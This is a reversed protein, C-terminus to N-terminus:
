YEFWDTLDYGGGPGSQFLVSPLGSDYKVSATNILVIKYATVEKINVSQGLTIKGHGAYAVLAGASQGIDIANLSGGTEASTNQSVMFVYSGSTGSSQFQTNQGITAIGSGSPNAPNDAIIAVSQVQLDPHVKIIPGNQTTVNGAVWIPGNLLVTIGNGKIMLDCPVKLPGVTMSETIEYSGNTCTAVNDDAWAEWEAILEDSIPMPAPSQDASNAHKVGNVTTNTLTTYYADKDITSNKITHAYATGTAHVGDITGSAGASVVDGYVYNGSGTVTGNSYVNGVVNSSNQLVFGGQGSQVGYHFSVGSGYSVSATFKRHYVNRLGEVTIKKGQPTVLTSVTATSSGITLTVSNPLNKGTRLRYLAEEIGSNSALLAQKSYSNGKISAFYTIVPLAGGIVLILGVSAFLITLVIIVYGKSKSPSTRM